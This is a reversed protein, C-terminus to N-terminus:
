FQFPTVAATSDYPICPQFVGQLWKSLSFISFCLM